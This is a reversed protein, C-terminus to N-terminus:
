DAKNNLNQLDKIHKALIYASMMKNNIWASHPLRIGADDGKRKLAEPKDVYNIIIQKFKTINDLRFNKNVCQALFANNIFKSLAYQVIMSALANLLSPESLEVPAALAAINKPEVGASKIIEVILPLPNPDIRTHQARISSLAKSIDQADFKYYLLAAYDRWLNNDTIQPKQYSQLFANIQIKFANKSEQDNSSM